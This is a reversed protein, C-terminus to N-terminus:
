GLYYRAVITIISIISSAVIFLITLIKFYKKDFLPFSLTTNYLLAFILPFLPIFYRRSVGVILSRGVSNWILYLATEVSIVCIFIIAGTIIKQFLNIVIKKNHDFLAYLSIVCFYVVGIENLFNNKFRFDTPTAFLRTFVQNSCYKLSEIFRIPNSLIYHIQATPNIYERMPAFSTSTLWTWLTLSTFCSLMIISFSTFYQKKSSFKNVPILLFLLPISFYASKSLGILFSIIALHFIQDQTILKIKDSLAYNLVMAFFLLCLSVCMTDASLSAARYIVTPMLLILFFVWKFVPTTKIIFYAFVIFTLLSFIRGLYLEVLVSSNFIKAIKVGVVQPFYVVPSHLATNPFNIFKKRPSPKVNLYKKISSTSVIKKEGTNRFDGNYVSCFAHAVQRYTGSITDGSSLSTHNNKEYVIKQSIIHLESLSIVRYFHQAEDSVQFPPVIIAYLM